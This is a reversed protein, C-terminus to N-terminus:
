QVIHGSSDTAILGDDGYSYDSGGSDDGLTTDVFYLKDSSPYVKQLASQGSGSAVLNISIESGRHHISYKFGSLALQASATEKSPYIEYAYPAYPSSSLVPGRTKPPSSSTSTSNPRQSTSATGHHAPPNHHARVPRKAASQQADSSQYNNGSVSLAGTVVGSGRVSWGRAGLAVGVIAVLVTLALPARARNSSLRNRDVIATNKRTNM